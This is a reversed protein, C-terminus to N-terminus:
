KKLKGGATKKTKTGAPKKAAAKVKRATIKMRYPVASESRRRLLYYFEFANKASIQRTLFGEIEQRDAQPHVLRETKLFHVMRETLPIAHGALATLMCYDVAFPTAADIKQLIQKAPRKGLKKLAQLTVANYKEFVSALIRKTKSAINKTAPNDNGLVDIIEETLAVRLDNLDVFYASLKKMTDRAKSDALDESVIGYVLADVPEDYMPREPSPNDRKLARYLKQIQKSYEKSDKM